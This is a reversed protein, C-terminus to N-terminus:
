KDKKHTYLLSKAFALDLPHTIKFNEFSGREFHVPYGMELVLAADDFANTQQTQRHAQLILPYSFTQPTQAHMHYNRDPIDLVRNDQIKYVTDRMSICTSVAKKEVVADLHRQLLDKTIFPRVADHIMVYDTTKKLSELGKKASEQRTAGGQISSFKELPKSSVLVIEDFLHSKEFVELTHEFVPKNDLLLFQKPTKAGFRTGVGAMLIIAVTHM